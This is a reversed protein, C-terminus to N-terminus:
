KKLVYAKGISLYMKLYTFFNLRILEGLHLTIWARQAPVHDKMVKMLFRFTKKECITKEKKSIYGVSVPLLHNWKKHILISSEIWDKNLTGESLHEVLIDYTVAVKYYQGIALSLDIDYGHFGKLLIEDFPIREMINKTSALFLGDVCAVQALKELETNQYQLSPPQNKRKFHQIMNIKVLRDALGEAGWGSPLKPKHAAGAVGVLGLQSDKFIDLLISGWNVTFFRVDEHVFCLHEFRARRVGENYVASIGRPNIHNEIALVEYPIGVTEQINQILQNRQDSNVSCIIISLM